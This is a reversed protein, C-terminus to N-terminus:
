TTFLGCYQNLDFKPDNLIKLKNIPKMPLNRLSITEEQNKHQNTGILNRKTKKRGNLTVRNERKEGRTM